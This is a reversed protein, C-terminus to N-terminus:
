CAIPVRGSLMREILELMSGMLAAQEGPTAGWRGLRTEWDHWGPVDALQGKLAADRALDSPKGARHGRAAAEDLLHHCARLCRNVTAAWDAASASASPLQALCPLAAARINPPTSPELMLGSLLEDLAGISSKVAAPLTTLVVALLELAQTQRDSEGSRLASLLTPTVKTM